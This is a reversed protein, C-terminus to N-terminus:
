FGKKNILNQKTDTEKIEQQLKIHSLKAELLLLLWIYFIEHTIFQYTTRTMKCRNAHMNQMIMQVKYYNDISHKKNAKVKIVNTNSDDAKM